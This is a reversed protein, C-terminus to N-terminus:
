EGTARREVFADGLRGMQRFKQYRQELRTAADLAGVEALARDLATDLLTAAAAPNNHAGGTPEPVIEDIIGRALLDPATMKLAEAAEIKRGADRWLIAACGEPPIVSYVAVEHMLIRDGIALRALTREGDVAVEVRGEATIGVLPVVEPHTSPVSLPVVRKTARM